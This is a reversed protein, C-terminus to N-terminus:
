STVGSFRYCIQAPGGTIVEKPARIRCRSAPVSLVIRAKWATKVAQKGAYSSATAVRNVPHRLPTRILSHRCKSDLGPIVYVPILPLFPPGLVSQKEPLISNKYANLANSNMSICSPQLRPAIASSTPATSRAHDQHQSQPKSYFAGTRTRRRARGCSWNQRGFSVTVM